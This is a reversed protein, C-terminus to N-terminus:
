AVAQPKRGPKARVKEGFRELTYQAAEAFKDQEAVRAELEAVKAELARERRAAGLRDGPASWGMRDAMERAARASVYIHGGALDTGFDFYGGPDHAGLQPLVACTSPFRAAATVWRM